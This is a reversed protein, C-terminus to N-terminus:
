ITETHLYKAIRIENQTILIQKKKFPMCFDKIEAINTIDENINVWRFLRKCFIPHVHDSGPFPRHLDQEM